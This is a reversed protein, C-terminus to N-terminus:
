SCFTPQGATVSCRSGSIKRKRRDAAVAKVSMVEVEEVEVQVVAVGGM